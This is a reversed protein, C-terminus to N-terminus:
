HCSNPKELQLELWVHQESLGPKTEDRTIHSVAQGRNPMTISQVESLCSLEPLCHGQLRLPPVSTRRGGTGTPLVKLDRQQKQEESTKLYSLPWKKSWLKRPEESKYIGKMIKIIDILQRMNFGPCFPLLHFNKAERHWALQPVKSFDNLRKPGWNGGRYFSPVPRSLFGYARRIIQSNISKNNATLNEGVKFLM